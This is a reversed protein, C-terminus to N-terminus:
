GNDVLWHYLDGLQPGQVDGLVLASDRTWVMDPADSYTGCAIQGKVQDPGAALPWTTPSNAGGPCQTVTSDEKIAM